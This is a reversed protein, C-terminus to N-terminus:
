ILAILYEILIKFGILILVIGGIIEAKNKYKDGFKKGIRVGIYSFVFTILAIIMIAVFINVKLLSLTMGVSLADLSTAISLVLMEKFSFNGDIDEKKFSNIIMVIGLYTLLAFIVYEKIGSLYSDVIDMLFYGILPMVGQFVSFWTAVLISKKNVDKKVTTGKCISVAFADMAVGIALIIIGLISM